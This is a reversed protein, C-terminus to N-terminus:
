NKYIINVLDDHILSFAAFPLCGCADKMKSMMERTTCNDYPETNQCGKINEDLGLFSETALIEKLSNLNYEGEGSLTVPDILFVLTLVLVAFTLLVWGITDLHIKVTNEQDSSYVINKSNKIKKLFPNGHIQRDENFDLIMTLGLELQKKIVSDNKFKNLDVKYCLQDNRFTAQFSNCVPVDFNNNDIGMVNIDEGFSCFPIFASPSMKGEDDQIHVPHNIVNHLLKKDSYFLTYM